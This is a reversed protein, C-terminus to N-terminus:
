RMMRPQNASRSRRGTFGHLTDHQKARGDHREHQRGCAPLFAREIKRRAISRHDRTRRCRPGSGRGASRLSALRCFSCCPRYPCDAAVSSAEPASCAKSPDRTLATPSCLLKWHARRSSCISQCYEGTERSPASRPWNARDLVWASVIQRLQPHFGSWCKLTRMLPQDRYRPLGTRTSPM